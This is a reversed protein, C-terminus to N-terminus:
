GGFLHSIIWAGGTVVASCITAILLVKAKVIDRWTELATVRGNTKTVQEIILDAKRNAEEQGAIIRALTANLSNPNFDNERSM